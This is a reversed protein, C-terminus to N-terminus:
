NKWIDHFLFCQYPYEQTYRDLVTAFEQVSNRLEEQKGATGTYSPYLVNRVDVLYRKYSLKASLLVVVPCNAAAAIAFAGYPLYAKDGLFSVSLADFNYKRDGMISVIDGEKLAHMIKIIGDLEAEPSIIRVFDGEKSINLSREVAPNDEPRMVLHVTRNLNKLTTLAVQWNGVHATLLIFGEQREQLLELLEGGGALEIDFRVNGSIAAYRDILQKGQSIFLRYIHFRSRLFGNEPFKRKVYALAGGTAQRDFLLYHLCILYLFGYAGRL